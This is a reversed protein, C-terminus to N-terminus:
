HETEWKEAHEDCLAILRLGGKGDEDSVLAVTTGPPERRGKGCPGCTRDAISYVVGPEMIERLGVARDVLDLLRPRGDPHVIVKNSPV